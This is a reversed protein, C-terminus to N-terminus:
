IPACGPLLLRRGRRTTAAAAARPEAAPEVATDPAAEAAPHAAPAPAAAVALAADAPPAAANQAADCSIGHATRIIVSLWIWSSM